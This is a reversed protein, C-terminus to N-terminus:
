ILRTLFDNLGATPFHLGGRTCTLVFAGAIPEASPETTPKSTPKM